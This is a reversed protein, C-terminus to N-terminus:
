KNKYEKELKSFTYSIILAIIGVIMFVLRVFFWQESLNLKQDVKEVTGFKCRLFLMM